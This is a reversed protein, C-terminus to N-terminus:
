LLAQEFYTAAAEVTESEGGYTLDHIMADIILGVDRECTAEDYVFSAYATDIFNITSTIINPFEAVFSTRLTIKSELASVYAPPTNTVLATFNPAITLPAYNTGYQIVEEVITILEQATAILTESITPNEITAQPIEVQQKQEVTFVRNRM